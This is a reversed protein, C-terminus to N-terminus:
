IMNKDTFNQCLPCAKKEPTLTIEQTYSQCNACHHIDRRVQGNPGRSSHGNGVSQHSSQVRYGVGIDDLNAEHEDAQYM